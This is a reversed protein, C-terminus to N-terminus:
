ARRGTQRGRAGVASSLLTTASTLIPSPNANGSRVATDNYPIVSAMMTPTGRDSTMHRERDRPVTVLTLRIAAQRVDVCSGATDDGDQIENRSLISLM